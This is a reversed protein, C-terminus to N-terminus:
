EHVGTVLEKLLGTLVDRVAAQQFRRVDDGYPTDQSQCLADDALRRKVAKVAAMGAKREGDEFGRRYLPDRTDRASGAM